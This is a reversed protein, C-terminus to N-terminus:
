ALSALQRVARSRVELPPRRTVMALEVAAAKRQRQSAHAVVQRLWDVTVPKGLLYRTGGDFTRQHAQWWDRLKSAHPWPLHEDPDPAVNEDDPDDNPGADFDEPPDASLQGRSLTAGTISVFAEGAIRATVPDDLQELIFPVHAPRGSAGIGELAVRLGGPKARADDIWGQVAGASLRRLAVQASPLAAYGGAAALGALAEIGGEDESLALTWASGFRSPSDPAALHRRVEDLLDRRGVSGVARLARARVSVDDDTLAEELLRGPDAQHAAFGAIGVRRAAASAGVSVLRLLLPEVVQWEVWGLASVVGRAARAGVDADARDILTVLADISTGEAALVACGFAQGAEIGLDDDLAAWAAARGMEGALRLADIHAEVREDLLALDRLAYHSATSAADRLRWLFAVESVHQEIVHAFPKM